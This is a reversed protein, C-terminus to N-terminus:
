SKDKKRGESKMKEGAEQTRRVGEHIREWMLEISNGAISSAYELWKIQGVNQPMREKRKIVKLDEPAKIEYGFGELVSIFEAIFPSGLFRQVPIQDCFLKFTADSPSKFYNVTVQFQYMFEEQKYLNPFLTDVIYHLYASQKKFRRKHGPGQPFVNVDIEEYIKNMMEISKDREEVRKKKLEKLKKHREFMHKSNEYAKHLSIKGKRVSEIDSRGGYDLVFRCLTVKYKSIGIMEATADRSDKRNQKNSYDRQTIDLSEVQEIAEEMLEPKQKEFNQTPFKSRRNGGRPYRKDLKDVLHLIDGDSINRRDRQNHLAYTFAEKEDKFDHEFIPIEDYGLNQTAQLRTHGDVVINKGKWICIPQSNDYGHEELNKEIHELTSEHIPFLSKFPEEIILESIKMISIM